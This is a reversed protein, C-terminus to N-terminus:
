RATAGVEKAISTRSIAGYGDAVGMKNEHARAKLINAAIMSRYGGQCHIYNPLEKSSGTTNVDAQTSFEAGRVHGGKLESPKRVDFM